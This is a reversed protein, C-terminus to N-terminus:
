LSILFSFILISFFYCFLPSYFRAYGIIPDPSEVVQFGMASRTVMRAKGYLLLRNVRLINARYSTHLAFSPFYSLVGRLGCVGGSLQACAARLIRETPYGTLLPLGQDSREEPAFLARVEMLSVSPTLRPFDDRSSRISNPQFTRFCVSSHPSVCTM